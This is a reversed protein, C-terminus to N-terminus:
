FISGLYALMLNRLFRGILVYAFFRIPNYSFLGAVIGIADFFPNPIFSFFVILVFGFKHFIEKIISYWFSDKKLFVEKGSKGLVYGVMDGIASGLAAVVAVLLPSFVIGGAIVSAFGPAPLFLTASGIINVIFIGLLGFSGLRLFEDRFYFTLFIILLSSLFLFVHKARNHNTSKKTRPM